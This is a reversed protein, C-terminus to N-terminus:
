SVLRGAIGREFAACAAGAGDEARVRLACEEVRDQISSSELIRRLGREIRQATLRTRPLSGGLGLRSVRTANDFQDHSFPVILQPRGARLAQSTTGIGGLHVVACAADFLRAISTSRVALVNHPLDDPTAAEGVVLVARRDLARVAQVAYEYFAGAVHGGSSGLTCVVPPPGAELFAELRERDPDGGFDEDYFPFGCLTTHEPWDPQAEAFAGSFLAVNGHPSFQGEWLPDLDAKLGLEERFTRM